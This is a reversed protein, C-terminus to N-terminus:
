SPGHRREQLPTEGPAAKGGFLATWMGPRAISESRKQCLVKQKESDIIAGGSARRWSRRAVAEKYKLPVLPNDNEDVVLLLEDDM